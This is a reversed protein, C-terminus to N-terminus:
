SERADYDEHESENILPMLRSIRPSAAKQVFRM